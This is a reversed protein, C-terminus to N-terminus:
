YTFAEEIFDVVGSQVRKRTAFRVDDAFPGPGCVTVAMAGTRVLLADDVVQQANVRGRRMSVCDSDSTLEVDAKAQTVFIQVQLVGKCGPVALIEDLWPRIWEVQGIQRITWALTIRQLAVTGLVYRDLLQRVFMVQHTIGVGGAFLVLDSYSALSNHCGTYFGEVYGWTVLTKNNARSAKEHMKRTFGAQVCCVFSVTTEMKPPQLIDMDSQDQTTYPLEKGSGPRELAHQSAWAVSFPHMQVPAIAPIWIHAHAGPNARWHRPLEVTVRSAGELAEITVRPRFVRRSWSVNYSLARIIRCFYDYSWIVFLALSMYKQPLDDVFLHVSTGLFILFVFIKHTVIFVEYVKRKLPTLTIIIVILASLGGVAGWAYSPAHPGTTLGQGVAAWGGIGQTSMLWAQSHLASELVFIRATWRHYLQFTDYPVQLIFILPNNRLGFLITPFLNFFAMTGTRGRLNALVIPTTQKYPLTLIWAINFFLYIMIIIFHARPPLTGITIKKVMLKNNHRKKFLPAYILHRKLWAFWPFRNHAWFHQHEANAMVTIHRLYTYFVMGWSSVFSIMVVVVLIAFMIQLGIFTTEQDVGNLDVSYPFLSAFSSSNYRIVSNNAVISGLSGYDSSM